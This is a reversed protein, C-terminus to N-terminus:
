KNPGAILIAIPIQSTKPDLAIILIKPRNSLVILEISVDLAFSASTFFGLPKGYPDHLNMISYARLKNAFTVFVSKELLFWSNPPRVKQLYQLSLDEVISIDRWYGALIGGLLFFTGRKGRLKLFLIGGTKIFFMGRRVLDTDLATFKKM